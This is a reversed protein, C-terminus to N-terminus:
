GKRDREVERKAKAIALRLVDQKIRHGHLALAVMFATCFDDIDIGTKEAMHLPWDPMADRTENLRDAEIFYSGDRREIGRTTVAWQRGQWLIQDIPIEDGRCAVETHDIVIM